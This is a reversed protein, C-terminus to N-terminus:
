ELIFVFSMEGRQEAAGDPKASFTCQLAAKRAINFLVQSTTTSKDLNQTVRTVKGQRDVFINLVVKGGENPKDTINPGKMLGRGGLSVSWGDGHFTGIGDPKGHEVGANGPQQSDGEGSNGGGGQGWSNLANSLQNSVQPKPEEPKPQEKPPDPKPKPKPTPKPPTVQSVESEEETAVEEPAEPSTDPTPAASAQESGPDPTETNGSGMDTTGFDAMAIEVGTEELPPDPQQLGFFLFLLVLLAHFVVTGIVGNRRDEKHDVAITSM